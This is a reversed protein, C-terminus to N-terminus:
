NNTCQHSFILPMTKNVESVSESKQPNQVRKHTWCEGEGETMGDKRPCRTSSNNQCKQSLSHTLKRHLARSSSKIFPAIIRSEYSAFWLPHDALRRVSGPWHRGSKWGPESRRRSQRPLGFNPGTSARYTRHPKLDSNSTVRHGRPTGFSERFFSSIQQM